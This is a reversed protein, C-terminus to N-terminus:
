RRACRARARSGQGPERRWGQSPQLDPDHRVVIGDAAIGARDEAVDLRPPEAGAVPVAIVFTLQDAQVRVDHQITGKRSRSWSHSPLMTPPGPVNTVAM